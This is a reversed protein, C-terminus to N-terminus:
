QTPLKKELQCLFLLHVNREGHNNTHWIDFEVQFHMRQRMWLSKEGGLKELAVLFMWSCWYSINSKLRALKKDEEKGEHRGKESLKSQHLLRLSECREPPMCCRFCSDSNSLSITAGEGSGVKTHTAMWCNVVSNWGDSECNSHQLNDENSEEEGQVHQRTNQYSLKTLQFANSGGPLHPLQNENSSRTSSALVPVTAHQLLSSNHFTKMWWWHHQQKPLLCVTLDVTMCGKFM